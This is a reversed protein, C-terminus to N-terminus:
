RSYVASPATNRNQQLKRLLDFIGNADFQPTNSTPAMLGRSSQINAPTTMLGLTGNDVPQIPPLTNTNIPAPDSMSARPTTTMGNNSPPISMFPNMPLGGYTSGSQRKVVQKSTMGNPGSVPVNEYEMTTKNEDRGRLIEGTPTYGVSGPQLIPVKALNAYAPAELQAKQGLNFPATAEPSAMYNAGLSSKSKLMNLINSSIPGNYSNINAQNSLLGQANLVGANGAEIANQGTLRTNALQGSNQAEIQALKNASELRAMRDAQEFSAGQMGLEHRRQAINSEERLRAQEQIQNLQGKNQADVVSLQANTQLPILERQLGLENNIRTASNPVGRLKDFWSRDDIAKTIPMTNYNTGDQVPPLDGEAFTVDGEGGMGGGFLGGLGISARGSDRGHNKRPTAM